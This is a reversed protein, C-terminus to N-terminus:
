IKHILDCLLNIDEDSTYYHPSIRFIYNVGNKPFFLPCDWDCMLSISCDNKEFMMKVDKEDGGANIFFSSTGCLSDPDGVYTLM